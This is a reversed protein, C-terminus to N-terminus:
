SCALEFFACYFRRESLNGSMLVDSLLVFAKLKDSESLARLSVMFM